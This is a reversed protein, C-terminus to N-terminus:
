EADSPEEHFVSFWINFVDCVDQLARTHPLGTVDSVDEIIDRIIRLCRGAAVNRAHAM